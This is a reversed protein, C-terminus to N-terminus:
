HRGGAASPSAASRGLHRTLSDAARKRPKQLLRSFSATQAVAPHDELLLVDQRQGEEVEALRQAAAPVVPEGEEQLLLLAKVQGAGARDEGEHVEEARDARQEATVM